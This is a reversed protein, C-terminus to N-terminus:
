SRGNAGLTEADPLTALRCARLPDFQATAIGDDVLWSGRMALVEGRTVNAPLRYLTGDADLVLVLEPVPELERFWVVFDAILDPSGRLCCVEGDQDISGGVV